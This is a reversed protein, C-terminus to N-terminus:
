RVFAAGDILALLILLGTAVLLAVAYLWAARLVDNRGVRATGVGLWPRDAYGSAPGPLSVGLGGALAAVTGYQGLPANGWGQKLAVLPQGRPVAASAVAVLMEAIRAPIWTLLHELGRAFAGFPGQRGGERAARDAAWAAAAVFAGPLGAVLFWFIPGVVFHVFSVATQELLSRAAAEGDLRRAGQRLRALPLHGRLFGWFVLGQVLFAVSPPLRGVLAAIGIGVLAAGGCLLLGLAAGRAKLTGDSRTARNLRRSLNRAVRGMIVPPAPVARLAFRIPGFALDLWLVALVLIPASLTFM